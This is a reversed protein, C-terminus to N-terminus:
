CAATGRWACCGQKGMSSLSLSLSIITPSSFRSFLSCPLSFHAGGCRRVAEVLDTVVSRSAWPFFFSGVFCACRRVAEVLDTSRDMVIVAGTGFYTGAEQLSDYDMLVEGAVACLVPLIAPPPITPHPIALRVAPLGGCTRIASSLWLVWCMWDLQPMLQLPRVTRPSSPCRPAVLSSRWCTTGGACCLMCPMLTLPVAPPPHRMCAAFCAAQGTRGYMCPQTLPGTHLSM